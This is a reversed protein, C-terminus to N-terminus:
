IGKSSTSIGAWVGRRWLQTNASQFLCPIASAKDKHWTQASRKNFSSLNHTFGKLEVSVSFLPASYSKGKVIGM